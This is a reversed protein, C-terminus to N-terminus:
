RDGAAVAVDFEEEARATASSTEDDIMDAMAAVADGNAPPLADEHGVREAALGDLDLRDGAM